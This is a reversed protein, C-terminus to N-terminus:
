GEKEWFCSVRHALGSLIVKKYWDAPYEGGRAKIVEDCIDEWEEESRALELGRIEEPTLM